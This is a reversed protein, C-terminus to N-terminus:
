EGEKRVGCRDGNLQRWLSRLLDGYDRQDGNLLCWHPNCYDLAATTDTDRWQLVTGDQVDRNTWPRYDEIPGPIVIPVHMVANPQTPDIKLDGSSAIVTEGSSSAIVSPDTKKEDWDQATVTATGLREELTGITKAQAKILDDLYEMRNDKNTVQSHLVVILRNREAICRDKDALQNTIWTRKRILDANDTQLEEIEDLFNKISGDKDAIQRKLETIEADAERSQEYWYRDPNIVIGDAAPAGNLAALIEGRFAWNGNRKFQDEPGDYTWVDRKQTEAWAALDCPHIRYTYAPWSFVPCKSMQSIAVDDWSQSKDFYHLTRQIRFKRSAREIAHRGERTTTDPQNIM